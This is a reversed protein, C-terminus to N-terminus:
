ALKADVIEVGAHLMQRPSLALAHRERFHYELVRLQYDEVLGGVM